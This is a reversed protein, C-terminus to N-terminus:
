PKPNRAGPSPIQLTSPKPSLTEPKPNFCIPGPCKGHALILVSSMFMFLMFKMFWDEWVGGLIADGCTIWPCPIDERARPHAFWARRGPILM